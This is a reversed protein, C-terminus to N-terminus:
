LDRKDKRCKLYQSIIMVPFYLIANYLILFFFTIIVGYGGIWNGNVVAPIFHIFLAYFTFIVLNTVVFSLIPGILWRIWWKKVGHIMYVMCLIIITSIGWLIGTGIADYFNRNVIGFLLGDKSMTSFALNVAPLENFEGRYVDWENEDSLVDSSDITNKFVGSYKKIPINSSFYSGKQVFVFVELNHFEKWAKAPQLLYQYLYTKNIYSTQDIGSGQKYTLEIIVDTKPPFSVPFTIVKAEAVMDYGSWNKIQEGTVPDVYLFSTSDFAKLFSQYDSKHEYTTIRDQSLKVGDVSISVGEVSDSSTYPFALLTDNKTDTPNHFTYTVHVEAERNEQSLIFSLKEDKVIIPSNETPVLSGNPEPQYIPASNAFVM